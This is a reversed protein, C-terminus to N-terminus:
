HLLVVQIRKLRKQTCGRLRAQICRGGVIMRGDSAFGFLSFIPLIESLEQMEGVKEALLRVCGALCHISAQQVLREMTVWSVVDEGLMTSQMPWLTM